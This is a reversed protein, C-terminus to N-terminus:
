RAGGLAAVAEELAARREDPAPSGALVRRLRLPIKHWCRSCVENEGYVTGPCGRVPCPGRAPIERREM